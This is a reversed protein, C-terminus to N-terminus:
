HPVIQIGNIPARPASDTSSGAATLTFSSATQNAFVVYNGASNNAQTFTGAFNGTDTATVTTAGITYIGTRATTGIDGDCYVYVDYGAGPSLGSVSVTTQSTKSTDLYGKMMRNNGAVDTIPTSWTNNSTWTVTAGASLGNADLLASQSGSAGMANNWRTAAVVGASEGSGMLAPTGNKTSGGQFNVSIIGNSATGGPGPPNFFVASNLIGYDNANGSLFQQSFYNETGFDESNIAADSCNLVSNNFFFNHSADHSLQSGCRLGNVNGDLTNCIASNFDTGGTNFAYVNIGRGAKSIHNGIAKNYKGGEEFFVGYRNILTGIKNFKVVANSTASDCDIADFGTTDISNGMLVGRGNNHNNQLYIARGGINNFICNKCFGPANGSGTLFHIGNAANSRNLGSGINKFTVGEVGAVRYSSLHIGKAHSGNALATITGGSIYLNDTPTDGTHIADTTTTSSDFQITGTLLVCTNSHVTLAADLLSYTGTLHLVIVDNPHAARANEYQTQVDAITTSGITLDTRGKGTVITPNTHPNSITPPYFYHNTTDSLPTGMPVVYNATASSAYDSTNGSFTNDYIVNGTGALTLGLSSSSQIHNSLCMNNFSSSDLDIGTDNGSCTNDTVANDHGDVLFGIGNFDCACNVVTSHNTGVVIGAGVNNHCNDDVCAAQNANILVIGNGGCTYVVCRSVTLQNDFAADGTGALSIGDQQCKIVTVKTINIRASSSAVIGSLNANYGDLLGGSVSVNTSGSAIAILSSSSASTSNAQIKTTPNLVLCEDSGLTLPTSSVLYRAATLNIVLVKGPNASRASDIQSQVTSISGSTDTITVVSEGSTEIFTANPETYLAYAPLAIAGLALTTSISKRLTALITNM